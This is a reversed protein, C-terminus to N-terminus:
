FRQKNTEGRTELWKKIGPNNRVNKCIKALNPAAILAKNTRELDCFPQRRWKVEKVNDAAEEELLTEAFLNYILLDALSLKGGVAYGDDGVVNEIRGVYWKLYRTSRTKMDAPGSSDTAGTDFWTNLQDETPESGYPILNRFALNCERLHEQISIIQAAELDSSGMMGLSKAVYYNIACSQGIFSGEASMVPMRGLNSNMKDKLLSYSKTVGYPTDTTYRGDEYDGPYKGKAALMMRPVEMLGRGNWYFLEFDNANDKSSGSIASACYSFAAGAAFAIVSGTGINM